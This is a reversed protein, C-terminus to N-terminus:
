IERALAAGENTAWVLKRVGRCDGVAYVEKAQGKLAYYLNDNAVSGYSLVVTDINEIVREEGTAAPADGYGALAALDGLLGVSTAAVTVTNGSIEKLMTSPTMKVGAQFLRQFLTMRTIGEMEEGLSPYPTIVEVNKGQQALFDATSMGQIHRQGDVILVNQGVEVKGTLVDRVNNVVNGQEIGKIDDPTRSLSGTAVVVVDPNESKVTDVTVETNLHVDVGLLKMQYRYYRPLEDFGDRGPAKAAVLIMGGLDDGKEWLSVQHGRAAAVRATELGAPGGGIVMVKKKNQAPILELWGPITEKGVVPNYSCGIGGPHRDTLRQWCGESCSLCKRIEDIRGERAKKPLEPDCILARNMAVLDAHGDALITEAQVPDIIRGICIVPVDVVQKIASALYVSHGLPFYMPAITMLGGTSINLYDLKGTSTMMPAMIKMDDLTYGGATFTDGNVRLGVVFDRGVTARVADIVELTFRMRGELDGGYEDTRQNSAPSMFQTFLYGHAGHLEVGDCGAKQCLAASAAFAEIVEKIEDKTMQHGIPGGAVRSIASPTWAPNGPSYSSRGGHWLQVLFCTGYQKITDAARKLKDVGYPTHVLNITRYAEWGSTLATPSSPHASWIGTTVIGVGGKAKAEWYAVNREGPLDDPDRMGPYHGPVVIRNPVTMSGVKIPSFLYKFQTAM